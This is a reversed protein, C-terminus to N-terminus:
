GCLNAMGPTGANDGDGYVTTETCMNAPLDNAAPTLAQSAGLASSAGASTATYDLEDLHTGELGVALGNNSNTIAFSFTFDVAPLGSNVLPDADTAFLVYDGPGFELCNPSTLPMGQVQWVGGADRRSLELGNLDVSANVFVEFWEGDGDAVVDPNAMLETIVLDGVQPVVIARPVGGDLCQGPMVLPGCSAGQMGPTGFDGNPMADEAACFNELIDNNDIDEAEPDLTWAVGASAAAYTIQDLMQDNVGVFLTGGANALSLSGSEFDAQPLDGNVLPDISKAFVVYTGAAVPLCDGAAPLTHDIDDQAAGIQVGNLDVNATVLVEFWEGNADTAASPDPMVETIVLDGPQPTVIPRDVGGDSCDGTSVGGCVPNEEGPTGLDGDGYADVADCWSAEDDNETPDSFAPDLSRAAGSTSSSWTIEDLVVGESGIFLYGDSNNLAFSFTADVQPLGGNGATERAIVAYAGATLHGCDDPVLTDGAEGAVKGVELGALDFEANARIEFWEGATDDVAAPNPLFETILLDGPAPAQVPRLAGDDFCMGEPPTIACDGNMAGPTGLDGAGYMETAACLVAPDDNAAPDVFDKDVQLARGDPANAYTIADILEGGRSLAIGSGSNTLGFAFTADVRPLGGNIAPDVDRALVAYTGAEITICEEALVLGEPEEGELKGIALGNLDVTRNVLVEFWEGQDDGTAGPNAMVETIVLDGAVPGDVARVAGDQVCETVSGVGACIDNQAGPTGFTEAAFESTADCWFGLDDNGTADPKRDGTFGRSAGDSPESYVAEDILVDGCAVALRGAANRMDGLDGGYGYDVHDLLIGEENLMGGMVAYADPELLFDSITHRKEDDGDERSHVLDVGSLGIAEPTANYIEFWESGSDVGPPNAMIETVVIDGAILSECGGDRAGGGGGCAPLALLSTAVGGLVLAHLFTSRRDLHPM